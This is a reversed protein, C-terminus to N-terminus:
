LKQKISIPIETVYEQRKQLLNTRDFKAMFDCLMIHILLIKICYICNFLHNTLFTQNKTLFEFSYKTSSKVLMQM